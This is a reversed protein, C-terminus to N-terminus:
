SDLLFVPLSAHTEQQTACQGSHVGFSVVTVHGDNMPGAGMNRQSRALQAHVRHQGPGTPLPPREIEGRPRPGYHHVAALEDRLGPLVIM